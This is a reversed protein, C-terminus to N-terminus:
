SPMKPLKLDVGMLTMFRKPDYYERVQKIKGKEMRFTHYFHEIYNFPRETYGVCSGKGMVETLFYDPDTVQHVILKSYTWDPFSEARVAEASKIKEIGNTRLIRGDATYAPGSSGNDAFLKWRDACDKGSFSFYKKVTELNMKRAAQDDKGNVVYPEDKKTVSEYMAEFKKIVPLDPKWGQERSEGLENRVETYNKIKGDVLRFVHIYHDSHSAPPNTAMSIGKGDGEALIYNPDETEFIINNFFQWDPFNQANMLEMKKQFEIGGEGFMASDGGGESFFGDVFNKCDDTYLKWRDVREQGKMSLYKEVTAHNKIRLEWNDAYLPAFAAYAVKTPIFNFTKMVLPSALAISCIKLFRRRDFNSIGTSM